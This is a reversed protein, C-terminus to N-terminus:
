ENENGGTRTALGRIRAAADQHCVKAHCREDAVRACEEVVASRLTADRAEIAALIADTIRNARDLTTDAALVATRIMGVFGEDDRATPVKTSPTTM